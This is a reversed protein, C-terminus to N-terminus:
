PRSRERTGRSNLLTKGRARRRVLSGGFLDNPFALVHASVKLCPKRFQADGQTIRRSRSRIVHRKNLNTLRQEHRALDRHFVALHDGAFDTSIQAHFLTGGSGFDARDIKQRLDFGSTAPIEVLQHTDHLQRTEHIRRRIEAFLRLHNVAARIEKNFGKTIRPPMRTRSDACARQREVYRNLDFPDELDRWSEVAEVLIGQGAM